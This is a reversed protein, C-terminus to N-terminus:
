TRLIRSLRRHSRLLSGSLWGSYPNYSWVDRLLQLTDNLAVDVVELLKGYSQTGNKWRRLRALHVYRGIYHTLLITEAIMRDHRDPTM